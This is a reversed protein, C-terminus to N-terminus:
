QADLCATTPSEVDRRTSARANPTFTLTTQGPKMWVGINVSVGPTLKDLSPVSLITFPKGFIDASFHACIIKRPTRRLLAMMVMGVEAVNPHHIARILGLNARKTAPIMVLFIRAM